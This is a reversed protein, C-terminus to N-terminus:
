GIRRSVLLGQDTRSAEGHCGSSRVLGSYEYQTKSSQYSRCCSRLRGQLPLRGGPKIRKFGKHHISGGRFDLLHRVISLVHNEGKWHQNENGAQSKRADGGLRQSNAVLRDMSDSSQACPREIRDNNLNPGDIIFIFASRSEGSVSAEESRRARREESRKGPREMGYWAYVVFPVGTRQGSNGTRAKM